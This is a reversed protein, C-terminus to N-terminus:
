RLDWCGGGNIALSSVYSSGGFPLRRFSLSILRQLRRGMIAFSVRGARCHGARGRCWTSRSEIAKPPAQVLVISSRLRKVELFDLFIIKHTLVRLNHGATEHIVMLSTEQLEGNRYGQTKHFRLTRSSAHPRIITKILDGLRAWISIAFSFALNLIRSM